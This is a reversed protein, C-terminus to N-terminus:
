MINLIRHSLLMRHWSDIVMSECVFHLLARVFLVDHKGNVCVDVPLPAGSLLAPVIIGNVVADDTHVRVTSVFDPLDLIMLPTEEKVTQQYAALASRAARLRDAVDSAPLVGLADIESIAMPIHSKLMVFDTYEIDYGTKEAARVFLRSYAGRPFTDILCMPLRPEASPTYEPFSVYVRKHDGFRNVDIIPTSILFLLLASQELSASGAKKQIARIIRPIKDSWLTGSFPSGDCDVFYPMKANKAGVSSLRYLGKAASLLDLSYWFELPLECKMDPIRKVTGDDFLVHTTSSYVVTPMEDAKRKMAM